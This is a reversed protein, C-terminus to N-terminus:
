ELRMEESFQEHAMAETIFGVVSHKQRYELVHLVKPCVGEAFLEVTEEGCIPCKSPETM